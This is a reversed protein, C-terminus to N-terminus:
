HSLYRKLLGSVLHVIDEKHQPAEAGLIDEGGQVIYAAVCRLQNKLFLVVIEIKNCILDFKIKIKKEIEFFVCLVCCGVFCFCFIFM